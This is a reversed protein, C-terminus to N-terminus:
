KQQVLRAKGKSLASGETLQELGQTISDEYKSCYSSQNKVLHLSSSATGGELVKIWPFHSFHLYACSKFEM